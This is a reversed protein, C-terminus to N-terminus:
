LNRQRGALWFLGASSLATCAGTLLTASYGFHTIEIGAVSSAVVSAISMTLFLLASAGERQADSVRNTLWGFISPENAYLLAALALYMVVLLKAPGIALGILMCASALITLPIFRREGLRGVMLPASLVSAVQILQGISFVNGIQATSLHVQRSLYPAFFTNISSTVATWVFLAVLFCLVFSSRPYSKRNTSQPATIKLRSAPVAAMAILLAGILLVIRKSLLPSSISFFAGAIAPLRSGAFGVLVGTTMGLATVLGFATSRKEPRSLGAIVPIFTVAWFAFFIGNMAAGALLAPRSTTMARACTVVACGITAIILMRRPGVRRGLYAAIPTGVLMGATMCGSVIGIFDERFGRDLLYLNYLLVFIFEGIDFLASAAIFASFGPAFGLSQWWLRVGGILTPAIARAHHKLRSAVFGSYHSVEASNPHDFRPVQLPFLCRYAVQAKARTPEVLALHLWLYNKNHNQQSRLPEFSFQEVWLRASEPIRAFEEDFLEPLHCHFWTQVLRFVIIEVRRLEAPHLSKWDNWFAKDSAHTNLFNGIEWARQLPLDGHVIHLFLHLAAFGLVDPTSLVNYPTGFFTRQSRRAWMAEQGPITIHDADLNWLRHHLEVGIQLDALDGNWRWDGAPVLPALHHDGQRSTSIYGHERLVRDAEHIEDQGCWIDIDGQARWIPDPTFDPSHTFGKLVVHEIERDSLLASITELQQALRCMRAAFGARRAAIDLLVSEPLSNGCLYPLMLTIQRRDCWPLLQQWESESIGALRVTSKNHFRLAELIAVAEPPLGASEIPPLSQLQEKSRDVPAFSFDILGSNSNM